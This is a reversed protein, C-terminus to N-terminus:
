FAQNVVTFGAANANGLRSMMDQQLNPSRDEVLPATDNEFSQPAAYIASSAIFASLTIHFFKM